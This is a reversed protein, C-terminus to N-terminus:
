ASTRVGDADYVQWGKTDSYVALYGAALVVRFIWRETGGTDYRVTLTIPSADRNFFTLAKVQRQVSAAPAAVITVPTTGTLAGAVAAAVFGSATDDAYAATYDPQTGPAGALVAELSKNIADLVIM